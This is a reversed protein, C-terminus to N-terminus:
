EKEKDNTQDNYDFPPMENDKDKDSPTPINKPDSDPHQGFPDQLPDILPDRYRGM